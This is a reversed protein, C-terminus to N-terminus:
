LRSVVVLKTIEGSRFARLFADYNRFSVCGNSDGDPGLMYTHALLGARGYISSGIPTLRLAAVGHFLEPRPSLAYTAPPTAGRMRESVKSPDDRAVGLGSHAELRTGDPLYVARASIDYVAVHDGFRSTPSSGFSLSRLFGGFGGGSSSPSGRGALSAGTAAASVPPPSAYALAPQDQTKARSGVGGFLKEFIGPTSRPAVRAESPPLPAEPAELRALVTPRRPPLPAAEDEVSRLDAPPPPPVPVPAEAIDFRATSGFGKMVLAGFPNAAPQPASPTALKAAAALSSSPPSLPALGGFPSSELAPATQLRRPRM